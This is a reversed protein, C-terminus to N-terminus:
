DGIDARSSTVLSGLYTFDNVEELTSGDSTKIDIKSPCNFTMVKSKKPNAMLGIAATEVRELLTTGTQCTGNSAIAPQNQSVQIAAASIVLLAALAVIGGHWLSTLKLM